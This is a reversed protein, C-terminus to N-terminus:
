NVEVNILIVLINFFTHRSFDWAMRVLHRLATTVYPGYVAVTKTRVAGSRVCGATLENTRTTEATVVTRAV